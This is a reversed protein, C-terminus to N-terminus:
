VKYNELTSVGGKDAQIKLVAKPLALVLFLDEVDIDTSQTRAWHRM